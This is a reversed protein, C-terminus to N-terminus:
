GGSPAAQRQQGHRDEPEPDFLTSLPVTLAKAFAELEVLRLRYDGSLRRSVYSHDHGMSAGLERMSVGKATMARLLNAQVTHMVALRTSGCGEHGAAGSRIAHGAEHPFSLLGLVPYGYGECMAHVTELALGPRGAEVQDVKVRCRRSAARVSLGRVARLSALASTVAKVYPSSDM